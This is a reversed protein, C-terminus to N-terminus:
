APYIHYQVSIAVSHSAGGAAAVRCAVRSNAPLKRHHVPAPEPASSALKIARVRSIESEAGSTGTYFVLEYTDNNSITEFTVFHIDFISTVTNSPILEAVSGLVWASTSATVTVPAALTPYVNAQGHHHYDASTLRPIVSNNSADGLISAITASGGTNVPTGIKEIIDDVNDNIEDLDGSTTKTFAETITINSAAVDVLSQTYNLYNDKVKYAVTRPYLLRGDYLVANQVTFQAM